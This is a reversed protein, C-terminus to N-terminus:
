HKDSRKTENFQVKDPLLYRQEVRFMYMGWRNIERDMTEKDLVGLCRAQNLLQKVTNFFEYFCRFDEYFRDDPKEKPQYGKLLSKILVTQSIGAVSARRELLASEKKTFWFQKKVRKEM